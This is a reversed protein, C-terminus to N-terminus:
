GRIDELVGPQAVPLPAPKDRLDVRGRLAPEPRDVHWLSRRVRAEETVSDLDDLDRRGAPFGSATAAGSASVM